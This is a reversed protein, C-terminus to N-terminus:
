IAQAEQTFLSLLENPMDILADAGWDEPREDKHIYGYRAAITQMGANIGAEIDRKADGVYVCRKPDIELTKCAHLLPEPHPKKVTLTDGCVLCPISKTLGMEELLAVTLYTPKNTVIGWPINADTLEEMLEEVGDFLTTQNYINKEYHALFAARLKAFDDHTEDVGFGVGILHTGGRSVHPRITDYHLPPHGLDNRLMNLADAMDPATDAFTGDLDFLISDIPNPLM